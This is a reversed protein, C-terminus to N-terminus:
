ARQRRHPRSSRGRAGARSRWPRRRPATRGRQDERGARVGDHQRERALLQRADDGIAVDGVDVLHDCRRALVPVRDHDAAPQEAELGRVAQLLAAHLDRDHVENRRQHLPLEVVGGASQQPARELLAAELEQHGRLGRRDDAVAAHLAHAERVAALQGRVEDHHGDADPRVGRERFRAADRALAAHEHAVRHLRVIRADVCEALAHLVAARAVAEDSRQELLRLHERVVERLEADPTIAPDCVEVFSLTVPM